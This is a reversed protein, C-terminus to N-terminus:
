EEFTIQGDPTSDAMIFAQDGLADLAARHYLAKQTMVGVGNIFSRCMFLMEDYTIVHNADLDFTDLTLKVKVDWPCAAYTILSALVEMINIRNTPRYTFNSIIM